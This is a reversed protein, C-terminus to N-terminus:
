LMMPVPGAGTASSSTQQLPEIGTL